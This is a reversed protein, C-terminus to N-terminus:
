WRIRRISNAADQGFISCVVDYAQEDDSFICESNNYEYFYVEQPDCENKIKEGDPHENKLSEYLEITKKNLMVVYGDCEWDRYYKLVGKSTNVTRIVNEEIM